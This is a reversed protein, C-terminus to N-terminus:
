KFDLCERQYTVGEFESDGSLQRFLLPTIILVQKIVVGLLNDADKKDECVDWIPQFVTKKWDKPTLDKAKFSHAMNVLEQTAAMIQFLQKATLKDLLAIKSGRFDINKILEGNKSILM